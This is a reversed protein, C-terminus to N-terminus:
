KKFTRESLVSTRFLRSMVVSVAAKDLPHSGILVKLHLLQVTIRNGLSHVSDLEEVIHRANSRSEADPM